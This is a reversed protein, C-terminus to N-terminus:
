WNIFPTLPTLDPRVVVVGHQQGTIGVGAVEARRPGLQGVVGRLCDAALGAMAAMDWESYGRAQRDAPTRQASNAASAKGIVQGARVDVALATIKTTGLDASLVVSM